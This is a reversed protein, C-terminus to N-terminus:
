LSFIIEGAPPSFERGPWMGSQSGPKCKSLKGRHEFNGFDLNRGGGVLEGVQPPKKSKALKCFRNPSNVARMASSFKQFLRSFAWTAMSSAVPMRPLISGTRRRSFVSSSQRTIISSPSASGGAAWACISVSIPRSRSFNKLSTSVSSSFSNRLPGWSRLFQMMLMLAPAPPVSDQSQALM